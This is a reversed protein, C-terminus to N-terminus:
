LRFGAPVLETEVPVKPAISGARFRAPPWTRLNLSRSASFSFPNKHTGAIIPEIWACSSFAKWSTTEAIAEAHLGPFLRKM